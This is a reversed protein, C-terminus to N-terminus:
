RFNGFCKQARSPSNAMGSGFGVPVLAAGGEVIRQGHKRPGLLTLTQGECAPRQGRLIEGVAADHARALPNHGARSGIIEDAGFAVQRQRLQLVQEFPQALHGRGKWLGVVGRGQDACSGARTV